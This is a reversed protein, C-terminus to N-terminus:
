LDEILSLEFESPSRSTVAAEGMMCLVSAKGGRQRVPTNDQHYSVTLDIVETAM